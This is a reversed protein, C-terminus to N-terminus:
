NATREPFDKRKYAYFDKKQKAKIRRQMNIEDLAARCKDCHCRYAVPVRTSTVTGHYKSDPNKLDKIVNDIYKQRTLRREPSENSAKVTRYKKPKPKENLPDYIPQDVKKLFKASYGNGYTYM